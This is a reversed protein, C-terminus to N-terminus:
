GTLHAAGVFQAGQVQLAPRRGTSRWTRWTRRNTVSMVAKNRAAQRLGRLLQIQARTARKYAVVRLQHAGGVLLLGGGVGRLLRDVLPSSYLSLIFAVVAAGTYVLLRRLWLASPARDALPVFPSM